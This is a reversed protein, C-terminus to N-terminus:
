TQLRAPRLKVSSSHFKYREQAPGNSGAYLVQGCHGHSDIDLKPQEFDTGPLSKRDGMKGSYYKITLVRGLHNVMSVLEVAALSM